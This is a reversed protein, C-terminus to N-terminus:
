ASCASEAGTFGYVSLHAPPSATNPLGGSLCLSASRMLTPVRVHQQDSRYKHARSYIAVIENKSPAAAGNGFIAGMRAGVCFPWGSYLERAAVVANKRLVGRMVILAFSCRVRFLFMSSLTLEPRDALRAESFYPKMAILQNM